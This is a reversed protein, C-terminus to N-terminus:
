GDQKEKQKEPITEFVSFPKVFVGLKQVIHNASMPYSTEVYGQWAPNCISLYVSRDKFNFELSVFCEENSWEATVEGAVNPYLYPLPVHFENMLRSVIVGIYDVQHKEYRTGEGDLWGDALALLVDLQESLSKM